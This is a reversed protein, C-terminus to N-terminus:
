QRREQQIQALDENLIQYHLIKQRIVDMQTTLTRM